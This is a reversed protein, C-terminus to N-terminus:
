SAEAKTLTWNVFEEWLKMASAVDVSAPDALLQIALGDTMAVTLAAITRLETSLSSRDDSALASVNSTTYSDYLQALQSRTKPDDLVHPLLEYFLGYGTTDSLLGAPDQM